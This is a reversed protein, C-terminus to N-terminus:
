ESLRITCDQEELLNAACVEESLLFKNTDSSKFLIEIPNRCLADPDAAAAAAAGQPRERCVCLGKTPAAATTANADKTTTRAATTSNSTEQTAGGPQAVNRTRQSLNVVWTTLLIFCCPTKM